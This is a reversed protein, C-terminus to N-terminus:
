AIDHRFNPPARTEIVRPVTSQWDPMRAVAELNPEPSSLSERGIMLAADPWRQEPENSAICRLHKLERSLRALEARTSELRAQVRKEGAKSSVGGASCPVSDFSNSEPGSISAAEAQLRILKRVKISIDSERAEIELLLDARRSVPSVPVEGFENTHRTNLGRRDGATGVRQQAVSAVRRRPAPASQQYVEGVDEASRMPKPTHADHEDHHDGICACSAAKSHKALGFISTLIGAVGGYHLAYADPNYRGSASSTLAFDAVSVQLGPEACIDKSQSSSPPRIRRRDRM